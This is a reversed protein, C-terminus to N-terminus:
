YRSFRAQKLRFLTRRRLSKQWCIQQHFEPGRSRNRGIRRSCRLRPPKAAMKTNYAWYVQPVTGSCGSYLNDYAVVSAQNLAGLLGTGFVVFDAPGPSACNAVDVQFGYKAPYNGAGLSAGSALDQSWDRHVKAATVGKVALGLSNAEKRGHRQVGRSSSPPPVGAALVPAREGPAQSTEANAPQSFIVRRHTWDMSLGKLLPKGQPSAWFGDWPPGAGFWGVRAAIGKM